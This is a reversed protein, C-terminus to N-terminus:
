DHYVEAIINNSDIKDHTVWILDDVKFGLAKSKTYFMDKISQDINSSRALLWLYDKDGGAVFAYQYAQQDLYFVVYSAYFPGFFSVKLHGINKDAVSYAVGKAQQWQQDELDYGRNIVQIGDESLQYEATVNDMGQEFRNDLRAIEYWKGLYRSTDFEDVPTVDQPLSICSTLLLSILTLSIMKLLFQTNKM